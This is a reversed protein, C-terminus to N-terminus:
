PSLNDLLTSVSIYTGFIKGAVTLGPDHSAENFVFLAVELEEEKKNILVLEFVSEEEKKLWCIDWSLQDWYCDDLLTIKYTQEPYTNIVIKLISRLNLDNLM